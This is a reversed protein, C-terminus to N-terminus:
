KAVAKRTPPASRPIIRRLRLLFGAAIGGESGTLSSCQRSPDDVISGAGKLDSTSTFSGTAIAASVASARLLKQLRLSRASPFARCGSIPPLVNAICHAKGIRTRGTAQPSSRVTVQRRPSIRFFAGCNQLFATPGSASPRCRTVWPFKMDSPASFQSKAVKRRPVPALPFPSCARWLSLAFMTCPQRGYSAPLGPGARM